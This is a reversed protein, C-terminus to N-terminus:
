KKLSSLQQDTKPLQVRLDEVESPLGTMEERLNVLKLEDATRRDAAEHRARDHALLDDLTM